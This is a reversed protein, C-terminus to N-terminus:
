DGFHIGCHKCYPANPSNLGSCEPCRSPGVAGRSSKRIVALAMVGFAVIFTLTIGGRTDLGSAFTLVAVMITGVVVVGALVWNM